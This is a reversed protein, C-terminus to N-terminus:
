KGRGQISESDREPPTELFLLLDCLTLSLCKFKAGSERVSSSMEKNFGTLVFQVLPDLRKANNLKNLIGTRGRKALKKKGKM